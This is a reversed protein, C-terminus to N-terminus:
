DFFLRGNIWESDLTAHQKRYFDIAPQNWELVQWDMRRVKNRKAIEVVALFLELGIRQQRFAQKVYLDELYVTKGKWTSYGFYYLAFAVVGQKPDEWVLAHCHKEDFLSYALEDESNVVANPEKEFTALERILALIAPVDMREANRLM